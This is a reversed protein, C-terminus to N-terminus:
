LRFFLRSLVKRRVSVLLSMRCLRFYPYFYAFRRLLFLRGAIELRFALFYFLIKANASYFINRFQLILNINCNLFFLFCGSFFVRLFIGPSFYRSLFVQLFIGPYFCRSFFVRIFFVRIFFYFYFLSFYM